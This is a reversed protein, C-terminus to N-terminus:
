ITKIDLVMLIRVLHYHFIHSTGSPEKKSIIQSFIYKRQILQILKQTSLYINSYLRRAVEKCVLSSSILCSVCNAQYGGLEVAFDTTERYENLFRNVYGVLQKVENDPYDAPLEIAGPAKGKLLYYFVETIKDIDKEKVKLM